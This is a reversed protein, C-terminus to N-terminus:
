NRQESFKPNGDVAAAIRERGKLKPNIPEKTTGADKGADAKIPAHGVKALIDLARQEASKADTLLKANAAKLTETEAKSTELATASATENDKAQKASAAIQIELNIAKETASGATANAKALDAELTAVKATLAENAAKLETLNM